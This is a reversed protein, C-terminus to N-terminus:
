VDVADDEDYSAAAAAAAAPLWLEVRAVRPPLSPLAHFIGGADEVLSRAIKLSRTEGASKADLDLGDVADALAGARCSDDDGHATVSAAVVVGGKAGGNASVVVTVEAGKPAAVLMADIVLALAEHVDAGRGQRVVGVPDVAAPARRNVVVATPQM